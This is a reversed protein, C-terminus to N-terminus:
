PLPPHLGHESPQGGSKRIVEQSSSIFLSTRVGFGVFFDIRGGESFARDAVTLVSCGVHSWTQITNLLITLNSKEVTHAMKKKQIYYKIHRISIFPFIYIYRGQRSRKTIAWWLKTMFTSFCVICKLLGQCFLVWSQCHGSPASVYYLMRLSPNENFAIGREREALM